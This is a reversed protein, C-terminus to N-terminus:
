FYTYVDGESDYINSYILVIYVVVLESILIDVCLYYNDQLIKEYLINYKYKYIINLINHM